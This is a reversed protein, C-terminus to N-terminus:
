PPPPRLDHNLEALIAEIQDMQVPTAGEYIAEWELIHILQLLAFVGRRDLTYDDRTSPISLM